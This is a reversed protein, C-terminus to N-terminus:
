LKCLECSNSSFKYKIRSCSTLWIVGSGATCCKKEFPFCLKGILQLKSMTRLLNEYM